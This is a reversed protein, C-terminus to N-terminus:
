KTYVRLVGGALVAIMGGVALPAALPSAGIASLVGGLFVAFGVLVVTLGIRGPLTTPIIHFTDVEDGVQNAPARFSRWIEDAEPRHHHPTLLSVIPTVLLATGSSVLPAISLLSRAYKLQWARWQPSAAGFWHALYPDYYTPDIVLYCMVGAAGGFLFGAAAGQWNMRRWLLGYIVTIVFLPMDLIGVMALNARVAGANIYQLGWAIALMAVGCILSSARVVFLLEQQVPERKKLTRYVDSTILTAVSNVDSTITSVQAAVLGCLVFGLLGVAVMPLQSSLLWPIAEDPNGFPHPHLRAAALGPLIWLFTMPTTIVGSLVMGKAGVRADRAGFARQLISQDICAWKISLLLIACIFLWNFEGETPVLKVHRFQDSHQFSHIINPLGGAAHMAIPFVVLAGALMVLFQVSDMIAVAWAGGIVSYLIAIVSFILLWVGYNHYGTIIGAVTAALYLLIGLYICLRVGWFAGVVTRLARSYRMELFEPVSRIRLRRMIPLVLLGSLVLAICGTWNQWIMSVGRQYVIGGMSVFHFMSLNTATITAALIFPTLERGAVFFDDSDRILGSITLGALAMIILFGAVIAYDLGTM